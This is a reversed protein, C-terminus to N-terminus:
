LPTRVNLIVVPEPLRVRPGGVDEGAHPPALVVPPQATAFVSAPPSAPPGLTRGIECM